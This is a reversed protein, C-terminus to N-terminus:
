RARPLRIRSGQPTAIALAAQFHELARRNRSRSQTAVCDGAVVVEYDRM